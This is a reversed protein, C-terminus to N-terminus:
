MAWAKPKVMLCCKVRLFSGRARPPVQVQKDRQRQSTAALFFHVIPFPFSHSTSAWGGWRESLFKSDQPGRKCHGRDVGKGRYSPGRNLTVSARRPCVCLSFCKLVIYETLLEIEEENTRGTEWGKVSEEEGGTRREWSFTLRWASLPGLNSKVNGMHGYKHQKDKEVRWGKVERTTSTFLRIVAHKGADTESQLQWVTSQM